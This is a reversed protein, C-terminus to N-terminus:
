CGYPYGTTYAGQVDCQSTSVAVYIPISGNYLGSQEYIGTGTDTTFGNLYATYSCGNYFYM